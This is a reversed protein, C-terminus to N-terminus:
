DRDFVLVDDETTGRGELALQVVEKDGGLIDLPEQASFVRLRELSDPQEPFEHVVGVQEIERLIQGSALLDQRRVIM